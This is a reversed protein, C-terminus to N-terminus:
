TKLRFLLINEELLRRFSSIISMGFNETSIILKIRSFNLIVGM